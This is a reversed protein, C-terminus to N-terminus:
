SFDAQAPHSHRKKEKGEVEYELHASPLTVEGGEVTVQPSVRYTLIREEGPELRGLSWELETSEGGQRIREPPSSDFKEILSAISPIFDKVSVNELHRRSRNEVRLHVTHGGEKRYVKKVVHPSMYERVALYVAAAILILLLVPAWYNVTYKVTRSSGPPVSGISWTYVTEGGQASVTGPEPQFSTFYDLYFPLSARVTTVNSEVNGRNRVTIVHKSTILNFYSEKEKVIKQTEEVRVNLTESDQLVGQLSEIRAHVTKVGRDYQGLRFWTELEATESPDLSPISVTKTEEALTVVAHYANGGLERNAVNMVQISVNVTSSPEYVTKGTEMERLILDNDRVIRYSPRKIVENGMSSVRVIVGVNGEVAEEGPEAYLVSTETEGPPVSLLYRPLFYWGPNSAVYDVSFQRTEDANNTVEISIKASEGTAPRIRPNDVEVNVSFDQAAAAHLFLSVLVAALFVKKVSNM